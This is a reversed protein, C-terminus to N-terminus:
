RYVAEASGRLSACARCIASSNRAALRTVAVRAAAGSVKAAVDSVEGRSVRGRCPVVPM